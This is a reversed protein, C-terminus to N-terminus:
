YKKSNRTLSKLKVFGHSYLCGKRSLPALYGTIFKTGAEKFPWLLVNRMLVKSNRLLSYTKVDRILGIRQISMKLPVLISCFIFICEYIELM